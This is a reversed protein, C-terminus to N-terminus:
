AHKPAAPPPRLLLRETLTLWLRHRGAPTRVPRGLLREAHELREQLTSHHLFLEAAASRISGHATFATLTAVLWPAEAAARRLALLDASPQSRPGIAAALHVLTGLDDAHVLRPGPDDATGDATFRVAIRAHAASQPLDPVALVPGAGARRDGPIRAGPALITVKGDPFAVVRATADKALGLRRAASLRAALDAAPDVVTETLASDQADPAPAAGRVRGIVLGALMAARELVMDDVLAERRETELWLTASPILSVPATRWRPDGSRDADHRSGDPEIRVLIRHGADVLGAPAGSLVAAGRVVAELGARSQALRDFYTIVDLAAQASSDMPALRRSLHQM